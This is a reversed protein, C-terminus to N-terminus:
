SECLIQPSIGTESKVLQEMQPIYEWEDQPIIVTIQTTEEESNIHIAIDSIKYGNQEFVATLGEKLINEAQKVTEEEVLSSLEDNDAAAYEIPSLDIDPLDTLFPTVLASVFFLSLTFKVVRQLNNSPVLLSFLAGGIMTVCVTIAWNQM